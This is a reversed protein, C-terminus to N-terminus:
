NQVTVSLCYLSPQMYVMDQYFNNIHLDSFVPYDAEKSNKGNIGYLLVPGSLVEGKTSNMDSDVCKAM